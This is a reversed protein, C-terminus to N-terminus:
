SLWADVYIYGGSRRAWCQWEPPNALVMLKDREILGVYFPTRIDSASNLLMMLMDRDAEDNYAFGQRDPVVDAMVTDGMDIWRASYAAPATEPVTVGSAGPSWRNDTEYSNM